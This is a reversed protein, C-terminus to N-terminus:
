TAVTAAYQRMPAPTMKNHQEYAEVLAAMKDLMDMEEGTLNQEGMKMLKDIESIAKEYDAPTNINETGM